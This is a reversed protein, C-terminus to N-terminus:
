ESGRVRKPRPEVTSAGPDPAPETAEATVRALVAARIYETLPLGARRAAPALRDFEEGSWRVPTVVGHDGPGPPETPEEDLWDLDRLAAEEQSTLDAYRNRIEMM